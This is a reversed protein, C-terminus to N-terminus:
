AFFGHIFWRRPADSNYHGSRFLWYRKGDQDEVCYYDRHEGEDLWWEREIREPGDAKKVQHIQEQYRFVMPPYDPIPATVEIPEPKQLLQTPRPKGSQWPISSRETVASASKISREPWYRAEPLYRKIAQEGIKGAVRDIFEAIAENELGKKGAWLAKQEQDMDEFRPASMIFLEIGLGPAITAIKLEFLKFLHSISHSAKSTGILVRQIRGDIRYCKLEATRLGKGQQQLDGCLMELCRTIAIEIAKATRIPELCPLHAEFAQPLRIPKLYEQETGTAQAIRLLLADGFRRRLVPRQIGIFSKIKYFGLKRLKATVDETLRLASPPLDLLAATQEGSPVVVTKSFRAVAWAAGITDAIAARVTYGKGNLKTILDRLYDAETGWLHTCGSADLILGDPLDLAVLPSYRILWEGIGQLLQDARGAKDDFAELDPIMAKADALRIGKGIGQAAALSNVASILMRGHDPLFFVFPLEKLEPKRLTLWDASLYPFWLAVYRKKM